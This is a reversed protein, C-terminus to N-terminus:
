LLGSHVPFSWIRVMYCILFRITWLQTFVCNNDVDISNGFQLM